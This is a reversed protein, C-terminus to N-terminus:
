QQKWIQQWVQLTWITILENNNPESDDDTDGTAQVCKRMVRLIKM